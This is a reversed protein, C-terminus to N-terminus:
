MDSDSTYSHFTVRNNGTLIGRIRCNEIIDRVGKDWFATMEVRDDDSIVENVYTQDVSKPELRYVESELHEISPELELFCQSTKVPSIALQKAFMNSATTSIRESAFIGRFAPTM